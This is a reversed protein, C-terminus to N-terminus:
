KGGESIKNSLKAALAEKVMKKKDEKSYSSSDDKKGYSASSGKKKTSKSHISDKNANSLLKQLTPNIMSNRAGDSSFNQAAENSAVASHHTKKESSGYSSDGAPNSGDPSAHSVEPQGKAEKAVKETAFFTEVGRNGVFELAAAVKEIDATIPSAEPINEQAIKESEQDVVSDESVEAGEIASLILDNLTKSM